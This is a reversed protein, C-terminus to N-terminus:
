VVSKRDEMVTGDESLRGYLTGWKIQSQHLLKLDALRRNIQEIPSTNQGKGQGKRQGKKEDLEECKTKTTRVTGAGRILSALLCALLCFM